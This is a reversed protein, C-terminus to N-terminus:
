KIYLREVKNKIEEINLVGIYIEKVMRKQNIFYTAPLTNIKYLEGVEGDEDLLIPLNYGGRRIFNSAVSKDEQNNITLLIIDNVGQASIEQYYSELIVLQDKAATNWTTWFTLVINKDKYDSLEVKEGEINSLKFDPALYDIKKSETPETTKESEFIIEKPPEKFFQAILLYILAVGFILTILILVIKLWGKFKRM